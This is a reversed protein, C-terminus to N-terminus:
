ASEKLPAPNSRQAQLQRNINELQQHIEELQRDQQSSSDDELFWSAIYGTFTGFLGVGATMLIGAIVRGEPTVPYFDGYGVTTITVFAWWLADAGNGINSNAGSEVQMIAVAGFVVLVMSIASVTAFTGQTRNRLLFTILMRASKAARLIRLVRIVRVVRAARFADIMPISSILDIWGWRMFARKSTAKIFRYFFDFLFFGCIITDATNFISRTEQSLPFASQAFLLLLSFVSLILIFFQFPGLEETTDNM